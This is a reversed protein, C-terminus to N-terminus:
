DMRALSSFCNRGYTAFLTLFLGDDLIPSRMHRNGFAQQGCERRKDGGGARERRLAGGRRSSCTPVLTSSIITPPADSTVPAMTEPLADLSLPRPTPSTRM